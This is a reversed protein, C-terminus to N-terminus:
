KTIEVTAGKEELQKKYEDAKEQSINELIPKGQKIIQMANVANLQGETEKNIIDKVVGYLQIPQKGAETVKLSVNASSAAAKQEETKQTASVFAVEEIGYREKFDKAYEGLELSTLSDTIEFFTEKKKQKDVDMNINKDSQNTKKLQELLNVM